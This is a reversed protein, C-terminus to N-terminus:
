KLKFVEAITNHGVKIKYLSRGEYERFDEPHWRYTTIYYDAEEIPAFQLRSRQEVTLIDLNYKGPKISYSVKISDSDDFELIYEYAKKFSTGWYDLEYNHRLYEEDQINVLANFFVHQFPHQKVMLISVAGFSAFAIIIVSLHLGKEFLFHLGYISILVFGCYIFFLQRWSDYLVSDLIIVMLVPVICCVFYLINNRKRTNEMFKFPGRLIHFLFLISGFVGFLLYPIPTTISFWVPIYYWPLETSSIMDGQFLLEGVWRFHSMNEFAIMFNGLPDSWLFPWSLILAAASFILMALIYQINKLVKREMVADILLFAIILCPLIVGMIRLNVLFGILIGLIVYNKLSKKHFSVATFYFCIMLMSMFPLDKSNFFSHAYLLPHLAILFFGITALLKNKYLFDILLFCFFCGILFFLHTVLHRMYFIDRTDNLKLSKEIIVLPLEFAVGYDRDVYELLDDNASFIYEYNVHGTKRQMMEDWGIGYDDFSFLSIIIMFLLLLLSWNKSLYIQWSRLNM